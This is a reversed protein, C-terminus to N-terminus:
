ANIAKVYIRTGVHEGALARTVNGRELGNVLFV